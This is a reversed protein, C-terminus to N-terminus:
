DTDVVEPQARTGMVAEFRKAYAPWVEPNILRPPRKGDLMDLMQEAVARPIVSDVPGRFVVAPVFGLASGSERALDLVSGRISREGRSEVNFILTRIERITADLQEVIAPGQVVTGPVQDGRWYVPCAIWGPGTEFYVRRQERPAPASRGGPKPAADLQTTVGTAVVRCPM